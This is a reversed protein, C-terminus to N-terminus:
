TLLSGAEDLLARGAERGSAVMRDLQHFELLGIGATSPTVVIAGSARATAAAGGFETSASRAAPAEGGRRLLFM